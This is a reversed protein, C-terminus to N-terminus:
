PQKGLRKRGSDPAAKPGLFVLTVDVTRADENVKTQSSTEGLNDFIGQDHVDKLFADPYEPDFPKGDKAGWMKRIAPESIVDLGRIELKAYKFEPGTDVNVALDVTHEKDDVTRDARAVAHLYGTSKYRKVIRDLGAKIEDFNVTEVKRWKVLDELERAKQAAAGTFRVAGLKYPPGEEVTVTVSVGVVEPQKSPEAAIKPFAVRLKGRAEYLPRISADLLRRVAPDSFETGIAVDAFKNLLETAPVSENGTLHVESIRPRQGAPRFLITPEGPLDYNLKGEVTVKGELARTLEKGYRDLVERTVPIVPGILIEQKALAARLAADSAPLDEFRYTYLLAIEAVDFTADYGTKAANPKFEYGVSEFAGTEVLRGRAADFQDKSVMQGIKLGSAAIIQPPTLRKNGQVILNTLPYPSAPSQAFALLPFLVVGLLWARM